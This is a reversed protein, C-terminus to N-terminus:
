RYYYYYRVPQNNRDTTRQNNNSINGQNNSQEGQSNNNQNQNFNYGPTRQYRRIITRPIRNVNRHNVSSESPAHGEQYLEDGTAYKRVIVSSPKVWDINAKDNMLYSMMERYYIAAADQGRGAIKGDALNDYGTWVSM